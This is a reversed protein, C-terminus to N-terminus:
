AFAREGDLELSFVPFPFVGSPKKCRHLHQMAADWKHSCEPLMHISRFEWARKDSQEAADPLLPILLSVRKHDLDIACQYTPIELQQKNISWISQRRSELTQM